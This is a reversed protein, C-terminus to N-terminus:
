VPPRRGSQTRRVKEFVALYLAAVHSWDYGSAHEAAVRAWGDRAERDRAIRELGDAMALLDRSPVVIGCGNDRVVDVNGPVNTVVLPLGCAMAEISVMSLGEIISPSFFCYASRYCETVEAQSMQGLLFVRNKLKRAEVEEALTELGRGVIVYVLDEANGRDRMAAFAGIGFQYGKKVHNRGVSLVIRTSLPLGLRHHLFNSAEVRFSARDIGNPIDHIREPPLFDLENRISSSIATVADATLLTRRIRRDWRPQLRLGYGIESVRQIDEGHPTVVLPVGLRPAVFAATRGACSAGHCSIVDIHEHRHLQSLVAWASLFDIGSKRSGHGPWSYLRVDYPVPPPSGEKAGKVVMTVRAGCKVVARALQDMVHEMGGVRPLFSEGFICIHMTEM